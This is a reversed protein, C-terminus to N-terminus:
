PPLWFSSCIGAGPACFDRGLVGFRATRAHSDGVQVAKGADAAVHRQTGQDICPDVQGLEVRGDRREAQWAAAQNGSFDLSLAKARRLDGDFVGGLMGMPVEALDQPHDVAPPESVRLLVEGSPDEGTQGLGLGLDVAGRELLDMEVLHPGGIGDGIDHGGGDCPVQQARIAHNGGRHGRAGARDLDGM